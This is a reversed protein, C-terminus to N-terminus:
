PAVLVKLTGKQGAFDLAELVDNLNYCAHIMPEVVVAERLLMDIAPRFPGCRSGIVTIEDVVVRSVNLARVGGALTSKLVLTGAPRVLNLAVDFGSYSGTVEVAVDVSYRYERLEREDAILVCPIGMEQLLALKQANHGVVTLDCGTTSLAQSVLLGLRGDGVVMVKLNGIGPLQEIIRLAAACPETFVAHNDPMQDPVHHLNAVPLVLYDALAGDLGMIGLAKRRHCHKRLGSQCLDCEGCGVNLEGVVRRGIWEEFGPAEVVEGVFEHGLVGRYGGKYGAVLQLDTACIGTMRVKILAEGDGPQPIPYDSVLVPGSDTLVLARMQNRDVTSM